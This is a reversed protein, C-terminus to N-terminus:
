KTPAGTQQLQIEPEGTAGSTTASAPVVLTVILLMVLGAAMSGAGVARLGIGQGQRYAVFGGVILALGVIGLGYIIIWGWEM